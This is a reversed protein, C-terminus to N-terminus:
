LVKTDLVQFREILQTIGKNWAKLVPKDSSRFLHQFPTSFNNVRFFSNYIRIKDDIIKFISRIILVIVRLRSM